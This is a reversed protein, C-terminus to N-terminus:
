VALTTHNQDTMTTPHSPKMQNKRKIGNFWITSGSKCRSLIESPMGVSICCMGITCGLVLIYGWGFRAGNKRFIQGWTITPYILSVLLCIWSIAGSLINAASHSYRAVCNQKDNTVEGAAIAISHAAVVVASLIGALTLFPISVLAALVFTKIQLDDRMNDTDVDFLTAVGTSISNLLSIKKSAENEDYDHSQVHGNGAAMLVAMKQQILTRSPGCVGGMCQVLMIDVPVRETEIAISGVIQHSFDPAHIFYITKAYPLFYTALSIVLFLTPIIIPRFFNKFIQITHKMISRTYYRM